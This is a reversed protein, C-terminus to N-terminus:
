DKLRNFILGRVYNRLPEAGMDYNSMVVLIYGKDQFIDLHSNLGPFGGGHGVVLGAPGNEVEFGFGYNGESHGQWMQELSKDSVLKGTQMARAYRHLDHVTAYGGGAPGGRMVHMFVNNKWGGGPAQLYGEALNDQPRDLEYCDSRTMGAPQYVNQRIYDFYNMGSAKEVVVGLLLMGTNSYQFRSGPEFALTDGQVLRKYDDLERFLERSSNVYTDNFYSGLGSTHTLLHQVTVRDTISKPLWSEDVYRSIPDDLRLKGKEALQMVATATFMKNMSGLNFRTDINNNAHYSKSAEGCAYEFLVRDGRALLVAGSFADRRCLLDLKERLTRLMEEESLPQEQETQPPRAPTFNLNDIKQEPGEFTMIFGYWSGFLRDRGIVVFQDRPPTYQRISYFDIGGTMRYTDKFTGVHEEMPAFDHFHAATQTNMFQEIRAADNSNIAELLAKIREGRVGAPLQRDDSFNGPTQATTFLSFLLLVAGTCLTRLFTM